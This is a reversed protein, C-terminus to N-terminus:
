VGARIATPSPVQDGSIGDDVNPGAEGVNSTIWYEVSATKCLGDYPVHLDNTGPAKGMSIWTDTLWRAQPLFLPGWSPRFSLGFSPRLERFRIM